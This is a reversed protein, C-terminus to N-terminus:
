LKREFKMFTVDHYIPDTTSGSSFDGPQFLSHIMIAIILITM